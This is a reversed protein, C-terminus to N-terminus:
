LNGGNVKACHWPFGLIVFSICLGDHAFGLPLSGCFGLHMLPVLHNGIDFGFAWKAMTQYHKWVITEVVMFNTLGWCIHNLWIIHEGGM